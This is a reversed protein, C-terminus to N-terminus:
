DRKFDVQITAPVDIPRGNVLTPAYRWQSVAALAATTFEENAPGSVVKFAGPVGQESIIASLLVTGEAGQARLDAPYVPEVKRLLAPARFDPFFLTFDKHEAEAQAMGREGGERFWSEAIALKAWVLYATRTDYVNILTNLMGRAAAYDGATISRIANDFLAQDQGLTRPQQAQLTFTTLPALVAITLAGVTLWARRSVSSHNTMPDLISKVRSELYSTTAMPLALQTNFKRAFALLHAAYGSPLLGARLAADDSARESEARLRAAAIWCLPHFWYLATTIHVVVLIAPDRRRIHAAEHAIVARRCSVSWGRAAQPLLVAPRWTGAVLPVEIRSSTLIPRNGHATRVIKRLRIFSVLLRLLLTLTGCAWVGAVLIGPNVAVAAPRAATLHGASFWVPAAIAAPVAAIVPHPILRRLPAVALAAGFAATWVSHRLAASTRHLLGTICWAMAFIITIACVVIAM